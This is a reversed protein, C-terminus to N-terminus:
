PIPAPLEPSQAALDQFGRLIGVACGTQAFRNWRKARRTPSFTKRVTWDLAEKTEEEQWVCSHLGQSWTM